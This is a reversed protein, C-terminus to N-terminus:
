PHPQNAAKSYPTALEQFRPDNRLPDFMPDLQLLSPTLPVGRFHSGYPIPMIKQLAAIARDSENTQAAVRALVEFLYPGFVADKEDSARDNSTRMASVLRGATAKVHEWSIVPALEKIGSGSRDFFAMWKGCRSISPM